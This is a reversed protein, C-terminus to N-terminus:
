IKLDAALVHLDTASAKKLNLSYKVKRPEGSPQHGQRFYSLEGSKLAEELRSLTPIYYFDIRETEFSKKLQKKPEEVSGSRFKKHWRTFDWDYTPIGSLVMLGIGGSKVASEMSAADNLACNSNSTKGHRTESSHVKMDWTRELAYDFSTSGIKKPGGGLLNILQPRVKFEFYFGQWETARWQSFEAEKMELIATMGDMHRPTSAIVVESIKRLEEEVSLQILSSRPGLKAFYESGALLVLNLGKLTITQGISECDSSWQYGLNQVIKKALSQKTDSDKVSLSMGRALNFLVSRREKSGPGLYEPGSNTLNSIRAVVELKNRAPVFDLQWWGIELSKVIDSIWYGSGGDRELIGYEVMHRRIVTHSYVGARHLFLEHSYSSGGM